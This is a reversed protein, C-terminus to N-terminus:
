RGGGSGDRRSGSPRGPAIAAGTLGQRVATSPGGEAVTHCGRRLDTGHGVPSDPSADVGVKEAERRGLQAIEVERRHRCELVSGHRRGRDVEILDPIREGSGAPVFTDLIVQELPRETREDAPAEELGGLIVGSIVSAGSSNSRLFKCHDRVRRPSAAIAPTSCARSSSRWATPSCGATSSAM